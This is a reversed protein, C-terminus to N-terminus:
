KILCGGLLFIIVVLRGNLSVHEDNEFIFPIFYDVIHVKGDDSSLWEEHTIQLNLKKPNGSILSGHGLAFELRDFLQALKLCWLELM